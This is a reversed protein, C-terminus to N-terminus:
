RHCTFRNRCVKFFLALFISVSLQPHFFFSGADLMKVGAVMASPFLGLQFQRGRNFSYGFRSFGRCCSAFLWAGRSLLSSPRCPPILRTSACSM